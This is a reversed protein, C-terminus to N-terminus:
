SERKDISIHQVTTAIETSSFPVYVASKPVPIYLVPPSIVGAQTVIQQNIFHHLAEHFPHEPIFVFNDAEIKGGYALPYRLHVTWNIPLYGNKIEAIQEESLGAIRLDNLHKVPLDLLFRRSEAHFQTRETLFDPVYTSAVTLAVLSMGPMNAQQFLHLWHAEGGDSILSDVNLELTQNEETSSTGQGGLLSSWNEYIDAGELEVMPENKQIM